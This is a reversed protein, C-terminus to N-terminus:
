EDWVDGQTGMWDMRVGWGVAMEKCRANTKKKKKKIEKTEFFTKDCM